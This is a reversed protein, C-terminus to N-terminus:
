GNGRGLYYECAAVDHVFIVKSDKTILRYKLDLPECSKISQELSHKVLLLDEPHVHKLFLKISPEIEWPEYGLVQYMEESWVYSEPAVHEFDKIVVQWRGRNIIKSNREGDGKNEESM